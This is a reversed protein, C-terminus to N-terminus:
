CSGDIPVGADALTVPRDLAWTWVVEFAMVDPRTVIRATGADLAPMQSAYCELAASKAAVQEESLRRVQLRWHERDLGTAAFSEDWEATCRLFPSDPQGTVCEPWGWRVSYPVDAYLTVPVGLRQAAVFGARHTSVHDPHQGVAAPLYLHGCGQAADALAAGLEALVPPAGAAGDDNHDGSPRHQLDLEGLRLATVQPSLAALAADDERHRDRVRAAADPAGTLVDWGGPPTGEPPVGAFVTIVRDATAVEISASLVADDLHASVVAVGTVGGGSGDRTM